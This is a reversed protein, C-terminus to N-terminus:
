EEAGHSKAIDIWHEALIQPNAGLGRALHLAVGMMLVSAEHLGQNTPLAGFKEQAKFQLLDNHKRVFAIPDDDSIEPIMLCDGWEDGLRDALVEPLENGMKRWLALTAKDGSEALGTDLLLEFALDAINQMLELYEDQAKEFKDTIQGKLYEGVSLHPLGLVEPCGEMCPFEDGQYMYHVEKSQIQRGLPYLRCALPRGLHVSCGFNDVYQSCAQKERWDAKGNFRLRIGGYECYLDRFERAAMKKERALSLLEWPNILVQNGHCCTGTRSCTLPLIDQISLKNTQM